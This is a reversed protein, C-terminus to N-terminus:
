ILKRLDVPPADTLEAIAEGIETEVELYSAAMEALAECQHERALHSLMEGDSVNGERWGAMLSTTKSKDM